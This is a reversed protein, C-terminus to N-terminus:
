EVYQDEMDKECFIVEYLIEISMKTLCYLCFLMFIDVFFMSIFNLFSEIFMM